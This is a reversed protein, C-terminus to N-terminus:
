SGDSCVQVIGMADSIASLLINDSDGAIHWIAFGALGNEDIFKGKAAISRCRFSFFVILKELWCTIWLRIFQGFSTADDYSIM